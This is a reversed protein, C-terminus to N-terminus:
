TSSRNHHVLMSSSIHNLPMATDHNHSKAAYAADHNHSKCRTWQLFSFNAHANLSTQVADVYSKNAIDNSEVPTAIKARGNGDRM